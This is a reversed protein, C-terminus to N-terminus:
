SVSRDDKIEAYNPSWQKVAAAAQAADIRALATLKYYDVSGSPDRVLVSGRGPAYYTISQFQAAQNDEKVLLCDEFVAFGLDLDVNMDVVTWTVKGFEDQYYWTQGVTLNNKLAPFIEFPTEDLIYYTGDAREVYHFGYGFAEGREVGTEVESVRVTENPVVRASFREVVGSMGDPYNVFFTCKLGPESLYTSARSLDVTAAAPSNSPSAAPTAAGNNRASPVTAAKGPDEGRSFWWYLGGGGLFLVLLLSIMIMLANKNGGSKTGLPQAPGGPAFRGGSPQQIAPPQPTAPPQKNVAAPPPAQAPKNEPAQPSAAPTAPSQTDFGCDGCFRDGPVLGAGCQPCFKLDSM